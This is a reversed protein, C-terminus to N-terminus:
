WPSWARARLGRVLLARALRNARANLELYTL